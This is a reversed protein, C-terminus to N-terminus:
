YKIYAAYTCSGGSKGKGTSFFKPLFDLLDAGMWTLCSFISHQAEYPSSPIHKWCPHGALFTEHCGMASCVLLKSLGHKGSNRWIYDVVNEWRAGGCFIHAKADFYPIRQHNLTNIKVHSRPLTYLNNFLHSCTFSRPRIVIIPPLPICGM